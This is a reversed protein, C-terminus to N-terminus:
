PELFLDKEKHRRNMLGKVIKGGAYVWREFQLSAGTYDAVNLRKLMTSKEFAGVGVNFVFSVLADYQNQTLPVTVFKDVAEEAEAVDLALLFRSVEKSIKLGPLVTLHKDSTHGVGITWIGAVDKYAELVEGEVLALHELGKESTKM